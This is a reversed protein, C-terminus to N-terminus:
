TEKTVTRPWPPVPMTGKGDYPAAWNDAILDAVLDRVQGTASDAYFVSADIRGGYKDPKATALVVATGPPLRRMVEDRAEHGGPQSLERANCGLLRIAWVSYDRMGHDVYVRCSDGDHWDIIQGNYLFPTPVQPATM